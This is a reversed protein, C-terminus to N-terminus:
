QQAVVGHEAVRQKVVLVAMHPLHVLHLRALIDVAAIEVTM